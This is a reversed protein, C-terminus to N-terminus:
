KFLEEFYVWLCDRSMKLVFPGPLVFCRSHEDWEATFVANDYIVVCRRQTDPESQLNPTVRRWSVENLNIKIM